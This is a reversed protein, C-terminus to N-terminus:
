DILTNLKNKEAPVEYNDIHGVISNNDLNIFEIRYNAGFDLENRNIDTRFHISDKEKETKKSEQNFFEKGPIFEKEAKKELIISNDTVNKFVIKVNNLSELISKRPKHDTADIIEQLEGGTFNTDINFRYENDNVFGSGLALDNSLEKTAEDVISIKNYSDIAEQPIQQGSSTKENKGVEAPILNKKISDSIKQQIQTDLSAFTKFSFCTLGLITSLMLIRKMKM